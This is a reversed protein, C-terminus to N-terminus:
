YQVQDACPNDRSNWPQLHRRYFARIRDLTDQRNRPLRNSHGEAPYTVFAVDAGARRAKEVFPGIQAFPVDRDEEGHYILLSAKVREAYSVPSREQARKAQDYVWGGMLWRDYYRVETQSQQIRWDAVAAGAVACAFAEPAKTVAMLTLFGGWSHGGIGVGHSLDVCPLSRAYNGAALVDQLDHKGVGDGSVGLMHAVGYGTSGRYNPTIVVYGQNALWNYLPNFDFRCVAAPGGRIWVIAPYHEGEQYYVPLYILTPIRTGDEGPIIAEEPPRLKRELDLPASWTLRMPTRDTASVAWLDGPEIPSSHWYYIRNDRSWAVPVNAGGQNTLRQPLSGDLSCVWLDDSSGDQEARSAFVLQQGNPALRFAYDDWAGTTLPRAEGGEPSLLWLKSWGSMISRTVISKGRRAWVAVPKQYEYNDERSLVRMAGSRRDILRIDGVWGDDERTVVVIRRGDPSWDWGLIYGDLALLDQRLRGDRSVLRLLTKTGERMAFLLSNGDPSWRPGALYDDGSEVPPHYLGGTYMRTPSGGAAPRIELGDGREVALWTSDPSWSAPQSLDGTDTLQRPYGGTRPLLYLDGIPTARITSRGNETAQEVRLDRQVVFALQRGDPAARFGRLSQPPYVEQRSLQWDDRHTIAPMPQASALMELRHVDIPYERGRFDICATTTNQGDPASHEFRCQVLELYDLIGGVAGVDRFGLAYALFLEPVGSHTVMVCCIRDVNGSEHQRRRAEMLLQAIRSAVERPALTSSDPRADGFHLYYNVGADRSRTELTLWDSDFAPSIENQLAPEDRVLIGDAGAGVLIARASERARERPSCLGIFRHDHYQARLREGLARAATEGEHTIKDERGESAAHRLLIVNLERM